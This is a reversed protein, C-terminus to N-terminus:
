QDILAKPKLSVIYINKWMKGTLYLQNTKTNHAIGNLVFDGDLRKHFQKEHDFLQSFNLLKIIHGSNPDIIAIEKKMWINAYIYGNIFELENLYYHSMNTKPDSVTLIKVVQFTTPNVFFIQDSGDTWILHSGNTTLGWGEKIEKPFKLIKKL